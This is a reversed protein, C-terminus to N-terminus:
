GGSSVTILELSVDSNLQSDHPVITDDHVALVTSPHIDLKVLLERITLGEDCEVSQTNDDHTISVRM